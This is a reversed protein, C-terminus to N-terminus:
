IIASCSILPHQLTMIICQGYKLSAEIFSDTVQMFTSASSTEKQYKHYNICAVQHVCRLCVSVYVLVHSYVCLMQHWQSTLLPSAGTLAQRGHATILRGATNGQWCARSDAQSEAECSLTMCVCKHVFLCSAYPSSPSKSQTFFHQLHVSVRPEEARWNVLFPQLAAKFHSFFSPSKIAWLIFM